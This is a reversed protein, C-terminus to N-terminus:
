YPLRVHSTQQMVSTAILEALGATFLSM